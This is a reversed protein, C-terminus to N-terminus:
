KLYILCGTCRKLIIQNIPLTTSFISCVNTLIIYVHKIGNINKAARVCAFQLLNCHCHMFLAHPSNKKVLSEVSKHKGSFTAAGNFGTGMLKCIEINKEKLFEVLTSYITKPDASKLPVIQLFHEVPVGDEVSCSFISLEELPTLDTCENAM